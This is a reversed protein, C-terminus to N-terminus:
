PLHNPRVGDPVPSGPVGSIAAATQLASKASVRRRM